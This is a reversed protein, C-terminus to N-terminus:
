TPGSRDVAEIRELYMRTLDRATWRGSAMGEQLADVTVEDLAFATSQTAAPAPEARLAQTAEPPVEGPACATGFAALAGLGVFARRSLEARDPSPPDGPGAEPHPAM